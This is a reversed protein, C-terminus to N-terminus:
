GKARVDIRVRVSVGVRVTEAPKKNTGNQYNAM